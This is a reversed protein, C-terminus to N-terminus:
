LGAFTKIAIPAIAQFASLAGQLLQSGFGNGGKSKKEPATAENAIALLQKATEDEGSAVYLQAAYKFDQSALDLKGQNVRSLGRAIWSVAAEPQKRIAEGFFREAEPHKGLQFAEVGANHLEAYSHVSLDLGKAQQWHAKSLSGSDLIAGTLDTQRLDAGTLDSGQLNAGRLSAGQLSAFSLNVNRLDAGDLQAGSLNARQLQAGRLHGDRLNARVLDADQLQCQQCSKIDLLRLLDGDSAARASPLSCGFALSAGMLISAPLHLKSRLM